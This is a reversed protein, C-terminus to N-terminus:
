FLKFDERNSNLNSEARTRDIQGSGIELVGRKRAIEGVTRKEDEDRRRGKFLDVVTITKRRERTRRLFGLWVGRERRSANTCTFRM